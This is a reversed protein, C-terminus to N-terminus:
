SITNNSIKITQDDILTLRYNDIILEVSDKTNIEKNRLNTFDRLFITIM